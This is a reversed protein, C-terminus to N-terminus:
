KSECEDPSMILRTTLSRKSMQSAAWWTGSHIMMQAMSIMPEKTMRKPREGASAPAIRTTVTTKAATITRMFRVIRAVKVSLRLFIPPTFACSWSESSPIRTTLDKALSAASDAM